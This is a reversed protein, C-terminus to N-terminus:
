GMAEGEEFKKWGEEFSEKPQESEKAKDAQDKANKYMFKIQGASKKTAWIALGIWKEMPKLNNRFLVWDLALKAQHSGHALLGKISRKEAKEGTVRQLKEILMVIQATDVGDMVKKAGETKKGDIAELYDKAVRDLWPDLNGGKKLLNTFFGWFNRIRYNKKRKKRVTKLSKQIVKLSYNDSINKLAKDPIEDLLKKYGFAEFLIPIEPRCSLERKAFMEDYKTALDLHYSNSGVDKAKEPSHTPDAPQNEQCINMNTSCEKQPECNKKVTEPDTKVTEKYEKKKAKEERTSISIDPILDEPIARGEYALKLIAKILKQGKWTMKYHTRRNIKTDEGKRKGFKVKLKSNKKNCFGQAELQAMLCFADIKTLNLGEAIEKLSITCSRKTWFLKILMLFLPNIEDLLHFFPAKKKFREFTHFSHQSNLKKKRWFYRKKKNYTKSKKGSTSKKSAKSQNKLDQCESFNKTQTISKPLSSM